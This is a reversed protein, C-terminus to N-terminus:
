IFALLDKREGEVLVWDREEEQTVENGDRGLKVPYKRVNEVAWRVDEGLVPPRRGEGKLTGLGAFRYLWGLWAFTQGDEWPIDHFKKGERGVKELRKDEWAKQEEVSPLTARGVWYRALAVAQYEFGRFTLVRPIGVLGLSPFDQLFTHQYNNVLRGGQTYDWLERGNSATNWFPFSPQYGTCYIVADIDTQDLHTGDSFTIKGTHPNYSSITPKWVIGEPPLPGDWRSPSRRSIYLPSAAVPLLSISLDHGSASNGIILVRKDKYPYASRYTKSHQIKNPFALTYEKLGPVHPIYPVSYHGNALIVADFEEEWWSDINQLSDHRRLTLKWRNLGGPLAPPLKSLNELTTNLALFTDTRHHSFYSAIYQQPIYHPCFPGYPFPLDSFSMAISPVNTTLDDYISTKAYREQKNPPTTTPLNAPIPLPPDVEPALAGPNIPLSATPSADYIWTGGPRERREFVRIQEFYREAKFAAATVAGAAGAGIIAVSRIKKEKTTDMVYPQPRTVLNAMPADYKMM